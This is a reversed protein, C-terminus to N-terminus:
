PTLCYAAFALALVVAIALADAISRTRTPRLATSGPHGGHPCERRHRHIPCRGGGFWPYRVRDRVGDFATGRMGRLDDGHVLEDVDAAASM